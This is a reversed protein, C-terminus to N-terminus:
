IDFVMRWLTFWAMGAAAVAAGCVSARLAIAGRRWQARYAVIASLGAALVTTAVVIAFFARVFGIAEKQETAVAFVLAFLPAFFVLVWCAIVIAVLVETIGEGRWAMPQDVDIPPRGQPHESREIDGNQLL